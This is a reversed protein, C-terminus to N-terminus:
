VWVSRGIRVITAGEEIALPYDESMGMSLECLHIRKEAGYPAACRDRLQRLGRFAARIAGEDGQPAMTMLGRVEIGELRSASELLAPLGEPAIGDKSPEGSVNVELLLRQTIGLLRARTAIGILARESAVSHVLEARGVFDKIKNTQISGIFHWREDPFATRKENFLSTRNEGFDHIGAAIAREVEPAGVTKSVAVLTVEAPDRGVRQCARAINERIVRYNDAIDSAL